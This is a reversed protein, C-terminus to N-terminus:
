LHQTASRAFQDDGEGLIPRHREDLMGNGLIAYAPAM